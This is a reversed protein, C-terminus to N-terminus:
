MKNKQQTKGTRKNKKKTTGRRNAKGGQRKKAGNARRKSPQKMEWLRGLKVLVVWCWVSWQEALDALGACGAARVWGGRLVGVWRGGHSCSMLKRQARREQTSADGDGILLYVAAHGAGRGLM